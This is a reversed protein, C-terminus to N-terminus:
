TPVKNSQVLCSQAGGLNQSEGVLSKSARVGLPLPLRPRPAVLVFGVFSKLLKVSVLDDTCLLSRLLLLPPTFPRRPGDDGVGNVGGLGSTVGFLRFGRAGSSSVGLLFVFVGTGVVVADAVVVTVLLVAAVAVVVAELVAAEVTVTVLAGMQLGGADGTRNSHGSGLQQLFYLFM